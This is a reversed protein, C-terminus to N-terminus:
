TDAAPADAPPAPPLVLVAARATAHQQTVCLAAQAAALVKARACALALLPGFPATTGCVAGVCPYDALPDLEALSEGLADFLEAVRSARHDADSVVAHIASAELQHVAMLETALKGLLAGSVRGAADAAKDRAAASARSVRVTAGEEPQASFLLCLAAEGPVVGHQNDASFLAGQDAWAQVTIPDIASSAALVGHIDDADADPQGAALVLGDIHAMVAAESAVTRLMLECRDVGLETLYRRQLWDKLAGFGAPAVAPPLLWVLRLRAQASRSSLQERAAVVVGPLLRDILALCRQLAAPPSVDEGWYAAVADLDLADVPAAFVPFGNDDCLKADPTPRKGAAVAALLEDADDGARTSLFAAILGVTYRREAESTKAQERALPDDDGASAPAHEAPPTRLHDIFGRLLWYGGIMAGPLAVLYLLMEVTSPSHDNAQWWALVLAWVLALAFLTAGLRVLASALMM